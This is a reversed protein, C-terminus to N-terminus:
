EAPNATGEAPLRQAQIREIVDLPDDMVSQGDVRVLEYGMWYLYAARAKARESGSGAEDGDIEIALRQGPSPEWVFDVELDGIWPRVTPVWGELLMWTFLELPAASAERLRKVERCHRAVERLMGDQELCHDIDAVVFLARRARTLTLNLRNPPLDVWRRAMAPMGRTVVPSYVVVDREDGQLEEPAGILLGADIGLADLRERLLERQGAFPSIVAISLDNAENILDRILEVARAAEPENIWSRGKSGPSASGAVAIPQLGRGDNSEDRDSPAGPLLLKRRYACRNALAVIEPHSRYVEDLMVPPDGRRKLVNTVARHIDNGSHGLDGLWDEIQLRVGFAREEGAQMAHVAPLLKRDGAVVLARGRYIAPLVSTLTCRPGEDIVVLDFLEPELPIARLDATSAIWVPFVSLLTRFDPCPQSDTDGAAQDGAQRLVRVADSVRGDTRLCERREAGAYELARQDLEAEISQIRTQLADRHFAAYADRLASEPWQTVPDKRVADVLGQLRDSAVGPPLIRLSEELGRVAKHLQGEARELALPRDEQQFLRWRVCWDAVRDLRGLADDPDLWGDGGDRDLLGQPPSEKRWGRIRDAPTPLDELEARLQRASRELDAAGKWCRRLGTLAGSSFANRAAVVRSLDPEVALARVATDFARGPGRCWSDLLPVDAVLDGWDAAMRRLTTQVKEEEARSRWAEAARDALMAEEEHRAAWERWADPDLSDPAASLDLAAADKRLGGPREGLPRTARWWQDRAVLAAWHQAAELLTMLRARGREDLAGVSILVAAPLTPLLHRELRRLHRLLRSRPSWPLFDARARALEQLASQTALWAKIPKTNADFDEPLGLGRLKVRQKELATDFRQVREGDPSSLERCFSRAQVALSRARAAWDEAAEASPWRDYAEPWEHEGLAAELPERLYAASGEEWDELLEPGPEELLWNCEDGDLVAAGVEELAQYRRRRCESIERELDSRRQDDQRALDRHHEMRDLWERTAALAEDVSDPAFSGLGLASQEAVLAAEEEALKDRTARSEAYGALVAAGSAAIRDPLDSELAACFRAREQRLADRQQLPGAANEAPESGAPDANELICRLAESIGQWSRGGARLAIPFGAEFRQLRERILDVARDDESVLLASRGRIWAKLLLSVLVQSKGSGAPGDIVTLREGRLVREVAQRQASGLPVLSQIVEQSVHVEAPRDELLRLGGLGSPDERLLDELRLYESVLPSTRGTDAAHLAFLVWPGPRNGDDDTPRQAALMDAIGPISRGLAELIRQDLPLSQPRQDSEAAPVLAKALSELGGDLHLELREILGGFQPSLSWDPQRPVMDFGDELRHLRVERYLLPRWHHGAPDDEGGAVWEPLCPGGLFLSADGDQELLRRFANSRICARPLPWPGDLGSPDFAELSAWDAAQPDQGHIRGFSRESRVAVERHLRVIQLWPVQRGADARQDGEAVPQRDSATRRGGIEANM